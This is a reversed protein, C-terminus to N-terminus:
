NHPKPHPGTALVLPNHTQGEAMAQMGTVFRQVTASPYHFLVGAEANLAKWFAPTNTNGGEVQKGLDATNKLLRMGGPADKDETFAAYIDRVGIMTGFMDAMLHKGLYAAWDERQDGGPLMRQIAAGALAPMILALMVDGALAPVNSVGRFRTEEASEALQNYVVTFYSYFKTWLKMLPGGRQIEPLDSFGGTTQSDRVAQNAQQVAKADDGHAEMSKEYQGIWTPIDAIMQGREIMWYFSHEVATGTAHLAAAAKAGGIMKVADSTLGTTMKGSVDQLDRTVLRGHARSKMFESKDHVWEVTNQLSAADGIWRKLGVGIWKPGIRAAGNFLGLPHKTSVIFNWGLGALTTGSNVYQVAKEFATQAPIDGVEMAQVARKLSSLIEPGAHVRISNGLTENGLLRKADILYDGWELDHIVESLHQFAVGFTKSVPRNEVTDAREKYFGAKVFGRTSGVIAKKAEKMADFDAAKASRNADYKLPYYGGKMDIVSGDSATAQFPTAEIMPPEVGYRRRHAAAVEGKFSNVHDLLEQAFAFHRPELTKFIAQVQADTWHDGDVVRQRSTENGWNLLVALRGELSLSNNIEPIFVKQRTRDAALGKFIKQLKETSDQLRTAERDAAENKPRVLTAWLASSNGPDRKDVFGALRTILSDFKRHLVAFGRAGAEIKDGIQNSETLDRPKGIANKEVESTTAEVADNFNRQDKATLLKNKLRALHEIQRVTDRLARVDDVSMDKYSKRYAENLLDEPIMPEQDNAKMKEVWAALSKRKDIARLTTNKSLDFRELLSDIQDRYDPDLAKRTGASAFKAFYRVAKAIEAQADIAAKAAYGNIVQNRKETAATVLDGRAAAREAAKAARSEAVQYKVPKLDRVAVNGVMNDAYGKAAEALVRKGGTAKALANAETAVFRLRADNHIAEDAAKDISDRDVLDGYRELMRQDTKGEITVKSPEATLLDRVLEDGSSYGLLEAVHDPHVGDEALMGYKGFGLDRYPVKPKNIGALEEAATGHEGYMERLAPLSLKTNGEQEQGDLLGFKLLQRARNVPEAMVEATVESTMAKRKTAAERQLQRVARDKAGSAWKMDRISRTELQDVASATADAGLRQYAAWQNADMGASAADKFLPNLGLATQHDEIQQDSALMRDFVGRVDDTLDVRLGAVSKYVSVLWSRFRQFVGRLEQSPAKGEMLYAEFGRAFLEHGERRAELPQALWEAPTMDKHGMFAMAKAMDQAIESDPHEAAVRALTELYFHGSEHLFTSLDAGKLLGILDTNPNYSGRPEKEGQHLLEQFDPHLEYDGEPTPNMVERLDFVESLSAGNKGKSYGVVSDYGAARVAHAVINEQLAYRLTNGKTSHTMIEYAMGPDAHHAELLNSIAEELLGERRLHSSGGVVHMIDRTLLEMSGKGNIAEYANEPAKGGTAGKVFLPAKLLTAGKVRETGGYYNGGQAERSYHRLNASGEPLYFVGTRVATDGSQEAKQNRVLNLQLGDPTIEAGKTNGVAEAFTPDAPLKTPYDLRKAVDPPVQDLKATGSVDEAAVKLPFQTHLEEPTIGLRHAQTAYFAATLHSYADNVDPTFRNATTLEALVKQRVAETSAQAADDQGSEEVIKHVQAKLDEAHTQLFAQSENLSMGNPDTKLHPILDQALSSGAAYAAFESTPIQVDQGTRLAEDMQPLVSPMAHLVAADEALKDPDGQALIDTIHRPDVYVNEVPGDATAKAVFDHFAQPDRERLKSTQAAENLQGLIVGQQQAEIAKGSNEGDSSALAGLKATAHAASTNAVDGVATAVLTSIAAPGREKLFQSVSKDPNLTRWTNFDSALTQLQMAPQSLMINKGLTKFFGTGKEVDGLLQHLPIAQALMAIAGQGGAYRQATAEDKGADKAESYGQGFALAGSGALMVDPNKTAVAAVTLPAYQALGIIGQNVGAAWPNDTVPTLATSRAMDHRRNVDFKAAKAQGTAIEQPTWSALEDGPAGPHANHFKVQDNFDSSAAEFLSSVSGASAFYAAKGLNGLNKLVQEVGALPGTDDHAIRANNPDTLFTATHPSTEALGDLNLSLMHATALSSKPDARATDIPVGTIQAARRLEAEYDPKTDVADGVSMKLAPVAMPTPVRQIAGPTLDPTKLYDGVGADYNESM